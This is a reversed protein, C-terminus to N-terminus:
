QHILEYNTVGYEEMIKKIRDIHKNSVGKCINIRVHHKKSIAVEELYKRVNEAQGTWSTYQYEKWDFGEHLGWKVYISSRITANAPVVGTLLLTLEPNINGKLNAPIKVPATILNAFGRGDKRGMEMKKLASAPLNPLNHVDIEMGDLKVTTSKLRFGFSYAPHEEIYSDDGNQIWTGKCFNVAIAVIADGDHIATLMKQESDNSTGKSKSPSLIHVAAFAMGTILLIGVFSAAIKMWNSNSAIPKQSVPSHKPRLLDATALLNEYYDRCEACHSIHENCAKQTEPSVEKDFLDAVITKFEKCDM